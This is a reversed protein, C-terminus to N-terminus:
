REGPPPLDFPDADREDSRKLLEDSREPRAQTTPTMLDDSTPATAAGAPVAPAPDGALPVLAVKQGCAATTMLLPVLALGIVNRLRTRSLPTHTM